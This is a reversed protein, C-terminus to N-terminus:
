CFETKRDFPVTVVRHLRTISMVFNFCECAYLAIIYGNLAFRPLLTWVLAVGLAAEAINYSMSWMMQGLGKLCGDTVIDMYIIPVM